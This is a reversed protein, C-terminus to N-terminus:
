DLNSTSLQLTAPAGHPAVELPQDPLDEGNLVQRLRDIDLAGQWRSVVITAVSNCHFQHAFPM